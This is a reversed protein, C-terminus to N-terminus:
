PKNPWTKLEREVVLHSGVTKLIRVTQGKPIEAGDNSTASFTRYQGELYLGVEGPAGEGMTVTVAGTCGVASNTAVLSTSQQSYFLELVFYMLGGLLIGCLVGILLATVYGAGYHMAIAGAAGFGMFLTALVKTSFVSITPESAGGDVDHGMDSGDHGVDQDHGFIFSGGVIIFAALAISIFVIM